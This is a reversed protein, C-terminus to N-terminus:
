LWKVFVGSDYLAKSKRGRKNYYFGVGHELNDKWAGAYCEGNAYKM